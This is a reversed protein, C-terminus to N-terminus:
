VRRSSCRACRFARGADTERCGRRRGVTAPANSAPSWSKEKTGMRRLDDLTLSIPREVLGSVQLKYTALDVAPHGYHQTTFFEDKPTIAGNITRIDIVRRDPAPNTVVREPFDLFPVVTESQALVPLAWEPIGVLGLGALALTRKLIDRRTNRTTM